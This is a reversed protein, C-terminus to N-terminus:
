PQDLHSKLLRSEDKSLVKTIRVGFFEDMAVVDGMAVPLGNVLVDVPQGILRNTPIVSGKHLEQVDSLKMAMRGLEVEVNLMVGNLIEPDPSGGEPSDLGINQLKDRIGTLAEKEEPTLDAKRM